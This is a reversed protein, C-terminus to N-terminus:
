DFRNFVLDGLPPPEHYGADRQEGASLATCVGAGPLLSLIEV